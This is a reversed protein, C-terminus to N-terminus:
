KKDGMLRKRDEMIHRMLEFQEFNSEIFPRANAAFQSRLVADSGLQYMAETLMDVDAKKVVLGTEGERMADTPGPIDTVIVPVGMAEAEVVVSGFGERYSPLVFVDMASLYQEVVDTRGCFLVREESKAWAYLEADVSHAKELDGILMLRSEPM